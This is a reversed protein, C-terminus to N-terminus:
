VEYIVGRSDTQSFFDVLEVFTDFSLQSSVTADYGFKAHLFVLGNSIAAIKDGMTDGVYYGNPISFKEMLYKINKGKDENRTTFCIADRFIDELSSLQLFTDLYWRNCNSVIYLQHNNALLRISEIAKPYFVGGMEKLCKQEAVTLDDLLESFGAWELAQPVVIKLCELYPKGAVSRIDNDTIKKALGRQNFVETWAVAIAASADWITGDLDWFIHAM